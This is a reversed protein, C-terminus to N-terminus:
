PLLFVLHDLCSLLFFVLQSSNSSVL